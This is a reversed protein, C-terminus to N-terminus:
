KEGAFARAFCCIVADAGDNIFTHKENEEKKTRICIMMRFTLLRRLYVFLKIEVGKCHKKTVFLRNNWSFLVERIFLFPLIGLFIARNDNLLLGALNGQLRIIWILVYM